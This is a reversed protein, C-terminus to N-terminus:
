ILWWVNGWVDLTRVAYLIVIFLMRRAADAARCLWPKCVFIRM